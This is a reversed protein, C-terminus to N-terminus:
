TWCYCIQCDVLAVGHMCIGVDPAAVPTPAAAASPKPGPKAHRAAEIPGLGHGGNLRRATLHKMLDEVDLGCLSCTTM